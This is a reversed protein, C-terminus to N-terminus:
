IGNLIKFVLQGKAASVCIEEGEEIEGALYKDTIKDEVMSQILRRIPRAGFDFDELHNIVNEEVSKDFTIAINQQKLREIIQHLMLKAIQQLEEKELKKFVIIEDIRNLFEPRFNQKVEKLVEKEVIENRETEELEQCFGLKKKSLILRAGVNSTMIIVANKFSVQRGINDTLRGDDLIQLLVNMVDPHAKEIEDFLVVCYPKRRIKETLIGNEEFGIYGPPAGILKSVSNPEMFESMDMRILANKEQFLEEALAKTLETKGVGTPGLFLFSGIPRNEDKLGIRARRISRAISSIAEDQGIIKHHLNKELNQLRIGEAEQLKGVDIGTYDALVEAIDEKLLRVLNQQNGSQLQKNQDEWIMQLDRIEDRIKAAKEFDQLNIAEEKETELQAIKEELDTLRNPKQINKFKAKCAAEDMLDIAKDPLFKDPLFRSSLEIAAEIAENTIQINHHAEYKDRLGILIEKAEQKSPEDINVVAFRRELATDKEIYKRYENITTAGIVHIEGRALSPKLINAADIAGEAAGAGVIVHIEDIFLIIDGAEKVEQIAKKIREEFDGRYKAGAVMSPIDLVIIKKEKLNDPVEGTPM